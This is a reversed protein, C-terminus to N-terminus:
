PNRAARAEQIAMARAVKERYALGALERESACTALVKDRYADFSGVVRAPCGVAVSGSAIDATVVSGAGVVVRSGITVGPLIITNVGIFVDDGVRIAGYRQRRGDGDRVLWTAGDHTLFKVGSTVTVRDGIHILFPESGWQTTYIRCGEGVRVGLKRALWVGGLFHSLLRLVAKRLV